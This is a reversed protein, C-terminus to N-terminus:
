RYQIMATRRAEQLLRQSLEEFQKNQLENRVEKKQASEGVVERRACIAVMEIGARTVEPATTQGVPTEDMIKRVAVSMDASTRIVPERVVTERMARATAVGSECDTFTKRLANAEALRQARMSDPATRSVVLVIQRVSYETTRQAKTLDEGKTQLAAFIDSDRVTTASSFRGRVYSNWVFDARMKQKLAAATLGQQGLGEAMQAPTRGNRTAMQAFMKDVEDDEAKIGYREATAIKLREDILEELAQKQNLTRRETLQVLKIRQAVDFSTIPQGQVMVMIQQAAAPTVPLIVAPLALAAAVLAPALMHRVMARAAGQLAPAAYRERANSLMDRRM